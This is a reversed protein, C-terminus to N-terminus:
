GTGAGRGEGGVRGPGSRNLDMGRERAVATVHAEVEQHARKEDWGLEDGLLQAASGGPGTGAAPDVLALRTRRALLDNLHVAMEARAAYIAEAQIPQFGAALREAAGTEDAVDLVNLARDGYCRVLNEVQDPQLRHRRARREVARTVSAVDSCGLRIWHTKSDTPAGLDRTVRDVVDKAMRRYTTLKGGTIGVVGPAIEYITHKRSLDATSGAEGAIM